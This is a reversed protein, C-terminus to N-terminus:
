LYEMCMSSLETQRLSLFLARGCLLVVCVCLWVGLITTNLATVCCILFLAFSVKLADVLRIIGKEGIHNGGLWLTTITKNTQLFLWCRRTVPLRLLVALSSIERFLVFNVKLADCLPLIGQSGIKNHRM